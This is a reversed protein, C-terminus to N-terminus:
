RRRKRMALAIPLLGAGVVILSSPEPIVTATLEFVYGDLGNETRYTWLVWNGESPENLLVTEGLAPSAYSPPDWEEMGVPLRLFTLKYEISDPPLSLGGSGFVWTLDTNTWDPPANANNWYYMRWSKSAGPIMELPSRIDSSFFGSYGTWGDVGQENYVAINIYPNPRLPMDLEDLDDSAEPVTGMYARSGYPGFAWQWSFSDGRAPLVIWVMLIATLLWKM